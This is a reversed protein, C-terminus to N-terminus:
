TKVILKGINAGTFLTNIAEPARKLGEVVTERDKLKGFMKWQGLQTAAETFRAAYDIVIFGQLRLRKTLITSFSALAPEGHYLRFDLRLSGRPRFAQGDQLEPVPCEVLQLDGQALLARPRTAL